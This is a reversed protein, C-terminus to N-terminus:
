LLSSGILQYRHNFESLQQEIVQHDKNIISSSEAV